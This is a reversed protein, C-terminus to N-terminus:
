HRLLRPKLSGRHQIGQKADGFVAPLASISQRRRLLTRFSARCAVPADHRCSTTSINRLSALRLTAASSSRQAATCACSDAEAPIAPWTSSEVRAATGPAVTVTILAPVLACRTAVVSASPRNVTGFRGGADYTM